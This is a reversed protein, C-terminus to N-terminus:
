CRSRESCCRRAAGNAEPRMLPRQPPDLTISPGPTPRAEAEPKPAGSAPLRQAPAGGRLTRPVENSPADQARASSGAPGIGLIVGLTIAITTWRARHNM